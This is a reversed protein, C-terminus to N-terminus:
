AGPDGPEPDVVDTAFMEWMRWEDESTAIRRARTMFDATAGNSGAAMFMQQLNGVLMLFREFDKALRVPPMEPHSHPILLV